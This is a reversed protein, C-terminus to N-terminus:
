ANTQPVEMFQFRTRGIQVEDGNCLLYDGRIKAGNVLTGNRSLLDEIYWAGEECSLRCHHRSCTDDHVVVENELHRGIQIQSQNTLDLSVPSASGNLLVLCYDAGVHQRPGNPQHTLSADIMALNHVFHHIFSDSLSHSTM